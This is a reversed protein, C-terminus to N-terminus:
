TGELVVPEVCQGQLVFAPLFTAGTEGDPTTYFVEPILNYDVRTVEVQGLGPLKWHQGVMPYRQLTRWILYVIPGFIALPCLLGTLTEMGDSLRSVGGIGLCGLFLYLGGVIQTRREKIDGKFMKVGLYLFILGVLLSSGVAIGEFMVEPTWMPAAEVITSEVVPEPEPPTVPEPEVPPEPEVVPATSQPNVLGPIVPVYLDLAVPQDDAPETSQATEPPDMDHYM